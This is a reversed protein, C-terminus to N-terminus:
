VDVQVGSYGAGGEGFYQWRSTLAEKIKNGRKESMLDLVPRIETLAEKLKSATYKDKVSSDKILAVQKKHTTRFPKAKDSTFFLNDSNLKDSEVWALLGAGNDFIPMPKRICGDTIFGFNNTHRDPNGIIADFLLLEDLFNGDFMKNATAYDANNSVCTTADDYTQFFEGPKLVDECVCVHKIGNVNIEPFENALKIWYNVHPLGLVEAIISAMVETYPEFGIQGYDNISNAKVLHRVGKISYWGKDLEGKSTSPNLKSILFSSSKEFM